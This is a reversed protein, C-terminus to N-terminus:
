RRRSRKLHLYERFVAIDRAARSDDPASRRFESIVALRYKPRLQELVDIVEPFLRWVGAEAFHEYAIEFFNDRDLEDLNPAVENLVRFVIKRWWGKDDDERPGDVAPRTPIEQWASTFARDLSEESLSLGLQHAVLAYHHGVSKTLFFLTGVADFFITNTIDKM